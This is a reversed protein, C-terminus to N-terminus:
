SRNKGLHELINRTKEKCNNYYSCYKKYLEEYKLYIKHRISIMCMATYQLVITFRIDLTFPAIQYVQAPIVAFTFRLTDMESERIYM